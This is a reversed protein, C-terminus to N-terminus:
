PVSGNFTYYLYIAYTDVDILVTLKAAFFNCHMLEKFFNDSKKDIDKINLLSVDSM